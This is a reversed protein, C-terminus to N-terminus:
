RGPWMPPPHDLSVFAHRNTLKSELTVTQSAHLQASPKAQIWIPMQKESKHILAWPYLIMIMNMEQRWWWDDDELFRVVQQKAQQWPKTLNQQIKCHNQKAKGKQNLM